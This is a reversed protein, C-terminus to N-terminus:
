IPRPLLMIDIYGTGVSYGNYIDFGPYYQYGKLVPDSFYFTVTGMPDSNLTTTWKIRETKNTENQGTYGYSLDLKVIKEIIGGLGVDVKFNHSNAYKTSITTEKEITQSPDNEEIRITMSMSGNAIDWQELQLGGNRLPHWVGEVDNMSEIWYTHRDRHFLGGGKIRHKVKNIRFLEKPSVNYMRVNPELTSTGDRRGTYVYFKFEFNGDTWIRDVIQAWTLPDRDDSKVEVTTHNPDNQDSITSLVSPHIKIKHIYERIQPNFQGNKPNNKTMGYYIYDRQWYVPDTGFHLFADRVVSSPNVIEDDVDWDYPSWRTTSQSEIGSKISGDFESDIFEYDTFNLTSRTKSNNRVTLRDNDKVVLCPFGPIEQPGLTFLIEGNGYFIREFNDTLPTVAIENDSVDWNEATFDHFLSFDPVYINLLPLTEEIRSLKQKDDCYSLLLDRVTKGDEVEKNKILPYFVDYDKDFQKLAEEKMLARLAQNEFVAKSLLQAFEKQAETKDMKAIEASVDENQIAQGLENDDCSVILILFALMVILYNLKKM